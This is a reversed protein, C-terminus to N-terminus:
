ISIRKQIAYSSTWCLVSGSFPIAVTTKYLKINFDCYKIMTTHKCTTCLFVRTLTYKRVFSRDTNLCLIVFVFCFSPFFLNESLRDTAGSPYHM